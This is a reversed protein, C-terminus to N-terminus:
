HRGYIRPFLPRFVALELTRPLNFNALIVFIAGDEGSPYVLSPCLCRLIKVVRETQLIIFTRVQQTERGNEDTPKGDTMLIIRPCLKRGNVNVVGGTILM